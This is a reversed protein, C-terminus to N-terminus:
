QPLLKAIEANLDGQPITLRSRCLEYNSLAIQPSWNYTTDTMTHYTFGDYADCREEVTPIAGCLIAEFFRYSWVYDGNPCLVFRSRLLVRFYEEDWAKVLFVRGRTSSWLLFAGM